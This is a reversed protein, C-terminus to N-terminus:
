IPIRAFATHLRMFRTGNPLILPESAEYLYAASVALVKTCCLRTELMWDHSDLVNEILSTALSIQQKETRREDEAGWVAPVTLEEVGYIPAGPHEQVTPALPMLVITKRDYARQLRDSVFKRGRRTTLEDRVAPFAARVIDTFTPRWLAPVALPSPPSLAFSPEWLAVGVVGAATRIIFKRRNM